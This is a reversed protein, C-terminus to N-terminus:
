EMKRLQKEWQPRKKAYWQTLSCSAIVHTMVEVAKQETFEDVNCYETANFLKKIFIRDSINSSNHFNWVKRKIESDHNFLPVIDQRSVNNNSGPFTFCFLKDVYAWFLSSCDGLTDLQTYDMAEGTLGNMFRLGETKLSVELRWVDQQLNLGNLRWTERIHPKDKVQNLEKTKNYCYTNADSTKSGFQLGTYTLGAFSQEGYTTFKGKGKRRIDGNLFKLIFDHVGWGNDFRNFDLAIDLRSISKFQLHMSMIEHIFEDLHVNYLSSNAFKIIVAGATLIKARPNWQVHAVHRNNRKDVIFGANAFQPTGYASTQVDFLPHEKNVEKFDNDCNCYISLWDINLCKPNKM